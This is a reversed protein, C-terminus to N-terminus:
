TGSLVSEAGGRFLTMPRTASVAQDRVLRDIGEAKLHQVLATNNHHSLWDRCLLVVEFQRQLYKNTVRKGYHDKIYRAPHALNRVM